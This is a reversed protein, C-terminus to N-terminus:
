EKEIPLAGGGGGIPSVTLYGSMICGDFVTTLLALIM